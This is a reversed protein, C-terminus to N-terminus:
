GTAQLICCVSDGFRTISLMIMVSFTVSTVEISNYLKRLAEQLQQLHTTFSQWTAGRHTVFNWYLKATCTIYCTVDKVQLM